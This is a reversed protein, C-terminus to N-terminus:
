SEALDGALSVAPAPLGASSSVISDVADRAMGTAVSNLVLGAVLCIGGGVLLTIGPWRLMAPPRPLNVLALLLIGTVVMALLIVRGPGNATGLVERLTEAQMEIESRGPAGPQSALWELLDIRGGPPLSERVDSVAGDVVPKVLPGAAAKIFGRTDGDVFSRRLDEVESGLIGAAQASMSPDDLVHGFWRDFERERCERSLITLSPASKPLKGQSLEAFPESSAEALRQLAEPSCDSTEPEVIELGDVYGHVGGLMATEIRELPEELIVYIELQDVDYRLYATFRDINAEVQERLYEPPLVDRLVDVVEDHAAIEINGLLGGIREKLAEDLLIEDYIRDYARAESFAGAYVESDDLRQTVNVGILLTLLGAFVALGLLISAAARLFAVM